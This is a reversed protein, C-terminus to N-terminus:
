LAILKPNHVFQLGGAKGFAKRAAQLCARPADFTGALVELVDRSANLKVAIYM